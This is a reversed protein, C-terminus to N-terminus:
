AKRGVLQLVCYLAASGQRRLSTRNRRRTGSARSRPLRWAAERPLFHTHHTCEACVTIEKSCNTRGGAHLLYGCVCHNGRHTAAQLYLFSFSQSLSVALLLSNPFATSTLLLVFACRASFPMEFASASRESCWASSDRYQVKDAKRVLCVFPIAIVGRPCRHNHVLTLNLSFSLPVPLYLPLPSCLPDFLSVSPFFASSFILFLLPLLYLFFLSLFRPHPLSGRTPPLCPSLSPSPAVPPSPYLKLIMQTLRPPRPSPHRRPARLHWTIKFKIRM